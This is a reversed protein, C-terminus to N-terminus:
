KKEEIKEFYWEDGNQTAYYRGPPVPPERLGSLYEHLECDLMVGLLREALTHEVSFGSSTFKVRHNLDLNLIDHAAMPRPCSPNLCRIKGPKGSSTRIFDLTEGCGM